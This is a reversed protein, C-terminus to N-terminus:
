PNDIILHGLQEREVLLDRKFRDLFYEYMTEPDMAQPTDGDAPQVATPTTELENIDIARSITYPATSITPVDPAPFHVTRLGGEGSELDGGTHDALRQAASRALPRTPEPEPHVLALHPREREERPAASPAAQTAARPSRAAIRRSATRSISRPAASRAVTAAAPASSSAPTRAVAAVPAPTRAVAESALRRRPRHRRREAAALDDAAPPTSTAGAEAGFEAGATADMDDEEVVAQEGAGFEDAERAVTSRSVARAAARPAARAPTPPARSRRRRDASIEAPASRSM